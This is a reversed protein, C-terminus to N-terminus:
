ASSPMRSRRTDRPSPSTYLLCDKYGASGPTILDGTIPDAVAGNSNQIKYFGVTSDYDAERTVSVTGELDTGTLGTFDLIPNLGLDSAILDNIGFFGDQLTIAITNGGNSANASNTTTNSLNLINFSSGFGDISSNNALLSELTNDVVEFFVLKQGNILSIDATTNM